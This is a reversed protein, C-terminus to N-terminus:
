IHRLEYMQLEVKFQGVLTYFSDTFKTTGARYVPSYTGVTFHFYFRTIAKRQCYIVYDRYNPLYPGDSISM